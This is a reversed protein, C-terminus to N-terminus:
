CMKQAFIPSLIHSFHCLYLKNASSFLSVTFSLVLSHSTVKKYVLKSAKTGFIVYNTAPIQDVHAFICHAFLGCSPCLFKFHFAVRTGSSCMESTESIVGM